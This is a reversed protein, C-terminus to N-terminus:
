QCVNKISSTSAKKSNLIRRDLNLCCTDARQDYLESVSLVQPLCDPEQKKVFM